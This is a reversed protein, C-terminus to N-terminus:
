ENKYNEIAEDTENDGEIYVRIKIDKANVLKCFKEVRDQVLAIDWSNGGYDFFTDQYSM